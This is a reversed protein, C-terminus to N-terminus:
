IAHIQSRERRGMCCCIWRSQIQINESLLRGGELESKAIIDKGRPVTKWGCIVTAVDDTPPTAYGPCGCGCCMMVGAGAGVGTGTGTCCGCCNGFVNM